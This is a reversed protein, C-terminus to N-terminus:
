CVARERPHSKNDHDSNYAAKAIFAVQLGSVDEECSFLASGTKEVETVEVDIGHEAKFLLKIARPVTELVKTVTSNSVFLGRCDKSTAVFGGSHQSVSVRITVSEKMATDM